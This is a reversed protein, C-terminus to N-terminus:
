WLVMLDLCLAMWLRLLQRRLHLHRQRERRLSKSLQPQTLPRGHVSADHQNAEVYERLSENWAPGEQLELHTADTAVTTDSMAPMAAALLLLCKLASKIVPKRAPASEIVPKLAAFLWWGCSVLPPPRPRMPIAVCLENLQHRCCNDCFDTTGTACESNDTIAPTGTCMFAAPVLPPRWFFFVLEYSM